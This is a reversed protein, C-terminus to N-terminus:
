DSDSEGLQRPKQPPESEPYRNYLHWVAIVPTVAFLVVAIFTFLIDIEEPLMETVGILSGIVAFTSFLLPFASPFRRYPLGTAFAAGLWLAAGFLAITEPEMESKGIVAAIAVRRCPRSCM